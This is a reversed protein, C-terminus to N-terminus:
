PTPIPTDSPTPTPNASPTPTDSPTPSPSASPMPTPTPSISASPSAPPSSPPNSVLSTPTPEPSASASATNLDKFTQINLDATKDEFGKRRAIVLWDFSGTDQSNLEKAVFGYQSKTDIYLQGQMTSTPTIIVRIQATDSIISSFSFDFFVRAEGNVMKSSGSLQIEGRTSDVGYTALYAGNEKLDVKSNDAAQAANGTFLSKTADDATNAITISRSGWDGINLDKFISIDAIAYYTKKIGQAIVDGSAWISQVRTMVANALTALVDTVGTGSSVTVNASGSATGGVAAISPAWYNVDAFATIEGSSSATNAFDALAVGISQGALTMKMAHGPMTKSVTLKDGTKIPGNETTVKVSARGNFAYSISGNQSFGTMIGAPMDNPGAKGVNGESDYAVVDGPLAPGGNAYTNHAFIDNGIFNHVDAVEIDWVEERGRPKISIIEDWSFGSEIDPVAIKMGVSLESVKKWAGKNLQKNNNNM